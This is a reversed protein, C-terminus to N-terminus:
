EGRGDSAQAPNNLQEKQNDTLTDDKKDIGDISSDYNKAAPDTQQTVEKDVGDLSNDYQKNNAM